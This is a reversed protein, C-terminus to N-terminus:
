SFCMLSIHILAFYHLYVIVIITTIVIAVAAFCEDDM